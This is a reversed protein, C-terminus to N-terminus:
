RALAPVTRPRVVFLMAVLALIGSVLIISGMPVADPVGLLSTFPSVLGALLFNAAGLVSAATGAENGHNALAIVQLCPFCMGAGLIFIWLSILVGVPAIGLRESLVIGAGALTAVILGVVLIWQPGVRRASRSGIQVGAAVCVSGVAFLLGFGQADFGYVTQFLFPANSLYGFLAMWLMAGVIAIGVFIRDTFIARYRQLTTAHGAIRRREPPLTERLLLACGVVLLVGFAALLWFMGRWPMFLLLQSGVLPAIIPALGSVLSLNALMRVLPVGAFLDRVMALAVVGGAATGIGQLLRFVLLSVPEPALAVGVSAFVHLATALVLPMRRGVVDSWPGTVLQGLAFGITTATLTLQVLGTSTDFEREILPFAPLYMDITFPGLMTLAGLMLVYVLRERRSLLNGPHQIVVPATATM